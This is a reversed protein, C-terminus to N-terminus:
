VQQRPWAALSIRLGASLGRAPAHCLGDPTSFGGRRQEGVSPAVRTWPFMKSHREAPPLPPGSRSEGSAVNVLAGTQYQSTTVLYLGTRQPSSPSAVQESKPPLSGSSQEAARLVLPASSPAFATWCPRGDELPAPPPSRSARDSHETAADRQRRTNRCIM